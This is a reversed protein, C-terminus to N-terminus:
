GLPEQLPQADAHISPSDDDEPQLRHRAHINDFHFNDDDDTKWPARSLQKTVTTAAAQEDDNVDSESSKGTTIIATADDDTKSSSPQGQLEYDPAAATTCAVKLHQGAAGLNTKSCVAPNVSVVTV